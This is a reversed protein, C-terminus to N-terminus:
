RARSEASDVLVRPTWGKKKRAPQPRPEDDPALRGARSAGAIAVAGFRGPAFLELLARAEEVERRQTRGLTVALVTYDCLPAMVLADAVPLLPGACVVIADFAPRWAELCRAFGHTLIDTSHAASSFSPVVVMPGSGQGALSAGGLMEPFRLYALIGKSDESRLGMRRAIRPSHLDADVLLTRAGSHVFSKALGLAIRDQDEHEGSSTVLVVQVSTGAEGASRSCLSARLFSTFASPYEANGAPQSAPRTLPAAGMLRTLEDASRVQRNSHIGLLMVAYSLCVGFVFAALAMLLPQPFTPETPVIAPQTIELSASASEALALASVLQAQRQTRLNLVDQYEPLLMAPSNGQLLTEIKSDLAALEVKIAAVVRELGQDVRRADWAKLSEALATATDAARQPSPDEFGIRLVTTSRTEDTSVSIRSRFRAIDASSPSDIGLRAMASSIVTDSMLATAYGLADLASSASMSVASESSVVSGQYTLVTANAKYVPERTGSWEWVSVGLLLGVLAATTLGRLVVAIFEGFTPGMLLADNERNV